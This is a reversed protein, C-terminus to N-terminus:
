RRRTPTVYLTKYETYIVMGTKGGPQKKVHKVRTYDVPVNSGERAKSYYAALKAAETLTTKDSEECFAIVHSGHIKQAHLWIDNKGAFKLTLRENQVNNRGVLIEAGASSVFRLPQSSVPKKKTNRGGVAQKIYGEGILEQRIEELEKEGNARELEDLV